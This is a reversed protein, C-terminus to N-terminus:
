PTQILRFFATGNAPETHSMNGAPVAVDQWNPTALSTARQLTFGEETWSLTVNDGDRTISLEPEEGGGGWPIGAASPGGLGAIESSTLSRDVFLFSSVNVPHNYDGTPEAFLLFDPGDDDGTYASFRGDTLAGGARRRVEEGNVYYAAEGRDLNAVFAVRYWADAAIVGEPSYGLPGIGLEGTDSVYFDADNGNEPETNFLPTWNVDAPLLLDWVMTYENLYGGGGNPSTPMALHLGHLGAPLLGIAAYSVEQGGIHPVTAGDSNQFTVLAETETSAFSLSGEGQAPELSGDFHWLGAVEPGRPNVTLTAVSSDTSDAANSVRVFYEGANAASADPILLTAATAGEIPADNFFWQYTLPAAGSATVSLSITTGATVTRSQPQATIAPPEVTEISYLGFNDIGFYWSDAGAHAFRFRVTAQNDAQPLRFFELRKSDFPDDDGRGSLYPGLEGWRASDVGIFDGYNGGIEEFTEPDTYRAVDDHEQTFTATADIVGDAQVIDAPALMYLIPLWTEGQDISYEVAGLSDQNQEFINHFLLHVNDQGTLDFDPTFLYVVQSAGNRYGSNGFAIKGQAIPAVIEGNVVYVPDFLNVRQYDSSSGSSYTILPDNFRASDVVMWRAYSASDLNGLDEEPNTIETYSVETWGSPLSGEPTSEFDEFVIPEPLQVNSYNAVVIETTHTITEAPSANDDFSLVFSQTSGPPHLGPASYSVTAGTPTSTVTADVESGNLRLVVSEVVVSTEANEITAEYVIAPSANAGPSPSVSAVFARALADTPIGDASPGGLAQIYAQPLKTDHVQISNVYGPQTNVGGAYGDTLLVATFDPTLAFRMDVQGSHTGVLNGNIYKSINQGSETLDVAIAIRVWTDAPVEGQYQGSIGLADNPNLYLEADDDSPNVSDSQILARWEGSSSAPFLIDMIITWQNVLFGGGNASIGHYLNYGMHPENAGFSMVGAPAGDIDPIGFSTTTGFETQAETQGGPGDYYDMAQGATAALGNQPDNFDWQGTIAGRASLAGACLLAIVAARKM